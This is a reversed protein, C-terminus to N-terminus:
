RCSSRQRGDHSIVQFSLVHNHLNCHKVKFSFVVKKCWLYNFMKKLSFTNTAERGPLSELFLDLGVVRSLPIISSTHVM